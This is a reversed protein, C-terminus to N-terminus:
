RIEHYKNSEFDELEFLVKQRKNCSANKSEFLRASLNALGGVFLIIRNFM